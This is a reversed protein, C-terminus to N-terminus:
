RQCGRKQGFVSNTAFLGMKYSFTSKIYSHVLFLDNKLACITSSIEETTVYITKQLEIFYTMQNLTMKNNARIPCM